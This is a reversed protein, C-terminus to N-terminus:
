RERVLLSRSPVWDPITTLAAAFNKALDSEMQHVTGITGDTVMVQSPTISVSNSGNNLAYVVLRRPKSGDGPQAIHFMFIDFDDDITTFGNATQQNWPSPPYGTSQAPIIADTSYLVGASETVPGASPYGFSEPMDSVIFYKTVPHDEFNGILPTVACLNSSSISGVRVLPQNSTAFTVREFRVADAAVFEGSEGPANDSLVVNGGTGSNFEYRGLYNWTRTGQEQNTPVSASGNKHNVVFAAGRARNTAATWTAYVDHFGSTPLTPTWTATDAGTGVSNILSSSGFRDTNSSSSWSGVTSFGAEGNDVIVVQARASALALILFIAVISFRIM